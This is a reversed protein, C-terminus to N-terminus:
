VTEMADHDPYPPAAIVLLAGLLTSLSRSIFTDKFHFPQYTGSMWDSFVTLTLMFVVSFIFFDGYNYLIFFGAAGLVPVLYVFRYDISCFTELLFGGAIIGAPVAAARQVALRKGSEPTTESMSIFLITLMVWVGQKLQLLQALLNGAALEAALLINRYWQVGSTQRFVTINEGNEMGPFSTVAAIIIVGAFIDMCRGAAPLFGPQASLALYGTIMVICGARRDSLTSFTFFAFVASTIIQLLPMVATVATLFQAASAYLALIVATGARRSFPAVGTLLASTLFTFVIVPMGTDPMRFFGRAASILLIAAFLVATRCVASRSFM